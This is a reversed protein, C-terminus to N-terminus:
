IEFRMATRVHLSAGEQQVQVPPLNDVTLKYSLVGSDVAPVFGVPMMAVARRHHLTGHGCLVFDCFRALLELGASWRLLM